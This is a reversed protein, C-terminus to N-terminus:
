TGASLVQGLLRYVRNASERTLTLASYDNGIFVWEEQAEAQLDGLFQHQFLIVDLSDAQMVRAGEATQLLVVVPIPTPATAHLLEGVQTEGLLFRDEGVHNSACWTPCDSGGM